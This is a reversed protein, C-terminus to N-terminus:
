IKCVFIQLPFYLFLSIFWYGHCHSDFWMISTKVIMNYFSSWFSNCFDSLFIEPIVLGFDAVGIHWTYWYWLFCAIESGLGLELWFHIELQFNLFSIDSYSDVNELYKTHWNEPLVSLKSKKRGFIVKKRIWFWSKRSIM